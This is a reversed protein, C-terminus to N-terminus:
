FVLYIGDKLSEMDPMIEVLARKMNAWDRELPNLDPSYAPLFLINMGHRRALNRLKAKPHFSANDMIITSGKPAAKLLKEKFWYM